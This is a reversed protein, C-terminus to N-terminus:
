HELNQDLPSKDLYITDLDIEIHCDLIEPSSFM